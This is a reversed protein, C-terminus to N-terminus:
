KMTRQKAVEVRLPRHHFIQRNFNLSRKAAVPDAYQIFAAGTFDKTVKDYIRRLSLVRGSKSFYTMIEEDTASDAIAAVFVTSGDNPTRDEKDDKPAEANGAESSTAGSSSSAATGDTTKAKKTNTSAGKM